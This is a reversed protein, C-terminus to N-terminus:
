GDRPQPRTKDGAAHVQGLNAHVLMAVAVGILTSGCVLGLAQVAVPKTHGHAKQRPAPLVSHRSTFLLHLARKSKPSRSFVRM